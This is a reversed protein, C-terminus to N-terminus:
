EGLIKAYKQRAQLWTDKYAVVFHTRKGDFIHDISGSLKYGFKVHLAIFKETEEPTPREQIAGLVALHSEFGFQLLRDWFRLNERTLKRESKSVWIGMFTGRMFGEFWGARNINGYPGLTVFLPRKLFFNFFQSPLQLVEGLVKPFEGSDLVERHWQLLIWDAQESPQYRYIDM